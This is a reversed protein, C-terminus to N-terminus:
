WHWAPPMNNPSACRFEAFLCLVDDSAFAWCLGRLVSVSFMTFYIVYSSHSKTKRCKVFKRWTHIYTCSWLIYLHISMNCLFIDDVTSFHLYKTVTYTQFYHPWNVPMASLVNHQCLMQQLSKLWCNFLFITLCFFQLCSNTYGYCFRFICIYTSFYM